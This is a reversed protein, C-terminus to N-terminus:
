DWSSFASWGDNFVAGELTGECWVHDGPPGCAGM